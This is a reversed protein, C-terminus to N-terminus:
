EKNTKILKKIKEDNKINDYDSILKNYIVRIDDLDYNDKIGLEAIIYEKIPLDSVFEGYISDYIGDLTDSNCVKCNSNMDIYKYNYQFASSHKRLTMYYDIDKNINEIEIIDIRSLDDYSITGTYMTVGITENYEKKIKSGCGSASITLAGALLLSLLEKKRNKM